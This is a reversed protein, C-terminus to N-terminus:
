WCKTPIGVSDAGARLTKANVGSNGSYDMRWMFTTLSCLRSRLRGQSKSESSFRLEAGESYFGQTVM